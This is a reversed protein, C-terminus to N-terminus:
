AMLPPDPVLRVSLTLPPVDETLMGMAMVFSLARSLASVIMTVSSLLECYARLSGSMWVRVILSSSPPM